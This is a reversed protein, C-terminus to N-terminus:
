RMRAQHFRTSYDAIGAKIVTGTVYARSMAGNKTVIITILKISNKNNLQTKHMKKQKSTM